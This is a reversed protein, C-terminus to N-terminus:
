VAKVYSFNLAMEKGIHEPNIYMTDKYMAFHTSDPSESGYSYNLTSGNVICELLEAREYEIGCYLTSDIPKPINFSTSPITMTVSDNILDGLYYHVGQYSTSCSPYTRVKYATHSTFSEGEKFSVATWENINNYESSTVRAKNPVGAVGNVWETGNWSLEVGISTPIQVGCVFLSYGKDLIVVTSSYKAYEYDCARVYVSAWPIPSYPETFRWEDFNSISSLERSYMLTTKPLPYFYIRNDADDIRFDATFPNATWPCYINGNSEEPYFLGITGDLTHQLLRLPMALVSYHLDDVRFMRCMLRYDSGYHGGYWDDGFYGGYIGFYDRTNKRRIKGDSSVSMLTITPAKHDINSSYLLILDGNSRLSSALMGPESNYYLIDPNCKPLNMISACTWEYTRGTAIEHRIIYNPYSKNSSVKNEIKNTIWTIYGNVATIGCVQIIKHSSDIMPMQIDIIVTDTFEFIGGTHGIYVKNKERDIAIARMATPLGDSHNYTDLIGSDISYIDIRSEHVMWVKGGFVEMQLPPKSLPLLPESIHGKGLEQRNLHYRLNDDMSVYYLWTDEPQQAMAFATPQLCFSFDNQAEINSGARTLFTGTEFYTSKSGDENTMPLHSTLATAILNRNYKELFYTAKGTIGPRDIRIVDVVTRSSRSLPTALIKDTTGNFGYIQCSPATVPGSSIESVGPVKVRDNSLFGVVPSHWSGVKNFAVVCIGNNNYNIGSKLLTFKLLQSNYYYQGLRSGINMILMGVLRMMKRYDDIELNTSTIHMFWSDPINENNRIMHPNDTSAANGHRVPNRGSEYKTASDRLRSEIINAMSPLILPGQGVAVEPVVKVSMDLIPSFPLEVQDVLVSTDLSSIIYPTYQQAPAGEVKTDDGTAFNNMYCHQIVVTHNVSDTTGNSGLSNLAGITRSKSSNDIEIGDILRGVGPIHMTDIDDSPIAISFASSVDSSSDSLFSKTLKIDRLSIHRISGGGNGGGGMYFMYSSMWGCNGYPIHPVMRKTMETSIM